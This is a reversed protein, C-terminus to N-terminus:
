SIRLFNEKVFFVGWHYIIIPYTLFVSEWSLFTKKKNMKLYYYKEVSLNVHKKGHRYARAVAYGVSYLMQQCDLLSESLRAM